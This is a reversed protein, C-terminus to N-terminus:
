ILFVNFKFVIFLVCKEKDKGESVVQYVYFSAVM